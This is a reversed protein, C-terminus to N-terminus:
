TPHSADAEELLEGFLAELAPDEVGNDRLYEGFLEHPSRQMSAFSWESDEDGERAEVAVSVEVANPLVARVEDALGTRAPEQLVVRLFDDGLDDPHATVETLTGRLTRLRRGSRLPIPRVRAPMGPDADVVLVCNDGPAEGFDLQLPSGCYWIPCAGAVLQPRHLHGLAVYHADPPFVQAPVVYDFVTHAPREGGGLTGGAVALHAVLLNVTGLEFGATLASVIQRIREAYRGAHADADLRMLDDARVIGRQSLFPLLAIQATDGARTRLTLVGGETPRALQAGAHITTLNLLPKVAALRQPSDHNGAIVVVHAGTAALDLLARYVIRESEPAPASTDFLDGAVLVLDAEESVVVQAIEALVARHEDARSRGRIAKGVHWDSTHVVKM